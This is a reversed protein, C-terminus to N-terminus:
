FDGKLALRCEACLADRRMRGKIAERFDLSPRKPSLLVPNRDSSERLCRDCAPYQYRRGIDVRQGPPIMKPVIIDVSM